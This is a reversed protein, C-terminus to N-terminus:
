FVTWMSLDAASYKFNLSKLSYSTWVTYTSLNYTLALVSGPTPLPPFCFTKKHMSPDGCQAKYIKCELPDEKHRAKKRM